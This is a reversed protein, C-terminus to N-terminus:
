LRLVTDLGLNELKNLIAVYLEFIKPQKGKHNTNLKMYETQFIYM